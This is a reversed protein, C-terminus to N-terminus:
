LCQRKHNHWDKKQCIKSCYFVNRCTKCKRLCQTKKRCQACQKIRCINKFASYNSDENGFIHKLFSNLTATQKKRKDLVTEKWKNRMIRLCTIERASRKCTKIQKRSKSRLGLNNILIGVGHISCGGEIETGHLDLVKTYYRDFKRWDNILICFYCLIQYLKCITTQDSDDIRDVRYRQKSLHFFPEVIREATELSPIVRKKIFKNLKASSDEFKFRALKIHMLCLVGFAYANTLVNHYHELDAVFEHQQDFKIFFSKMCFLMTVRLQRLIIRPQNHDNNFGFDFDITMFIDRILSLLWYTALLDTRYLCYKDSKFYDFAKICELHQSEIIKDYYQSKKDYDHRASDLKTIKMWKMRLYHQKAQVTHKVDYGGCFKVCFYDINQYLVNKEIFYMSDSKLIDPMTQDNKYHSFFAYRMANGLGIVWSSLLVHLSAAALNIVFPSMLVAAQHKIHVIFFERFIHTNIDYVHLRELIYLLLVVMGTEIPIAVRCIDYKDYLKVTQQKVALDFPKWRTENHDWFNEDRHVKPMLKLFHNFEDNSDFMPLNIIGPKDNCGKPRMREGLVNASM